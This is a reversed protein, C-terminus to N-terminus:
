PSAKDDVRRYVMTLSTSGIQQGAISAIDGPLTRSLDIKTSVYMRKKDSSFTVRSYIKSGDRTSVCMDLWFGSSSQELVRYSVKVPETGEEVTWSSYRSVYLHHAIAGSVSGKYNPNEAEARSAIEQWHGIMTGHPTSKDPGRTTVIVVIGLVVVLIAASAVAIYRLAVRRRARVPQHRKVEQSANPDGDPEAVVRVSRATALPPPGLRDTRDAGVENANQVEHPGTAFASLNDTGPDWDVSGAQRRSKGSKHGPRRARVSILPGPGYRNPGNVGLGIGLWLPLILQGIFPVFGILVMVGSIDMDHFRKVMTALGVWPGLYFLHTFLVLVLLLQTLKGGPLDPTDCLYGIFGDLTLLAINSLVIAWFTWRPIRGRFSFLIERVRMRSKEASRRRAEARFIPLGVAAQGGEDSTIVSGDVPVVPRPPLASGERHPVNPSAPRSAGCAVQELSSEASSAGVSALQPMQFRHGCKHCRVTRGALSDASKYKTNCSPCVIVTSM